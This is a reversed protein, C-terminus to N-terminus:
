GCVPPMFVPLRKGKKPSIVQGMPSQQLMGTKLQYKFFSKLTSIKRNLTAAGLGKDKLSALWSRVIASQVERINRIGYNTDLFDFFDVLDNTYSVLTHVSYRKEFKLFDLFSQISAREQVPM